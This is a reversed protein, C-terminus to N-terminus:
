MIFKEISFKQYARHVTHKLFHCLQSHGAAQLQLHAKSIQFPGKSTTSFVLSFGSLIDFQKLQIRSLIYKPETERSVIKKCFNFDTTGICILIKVIKAFNLEM